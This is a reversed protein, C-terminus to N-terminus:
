FPISCCALLTKTGDQQLFAVPQCEKFHGLGLGGSLLSLLSLHMSLKTCACGHGAPGPEDLHPYDVPLSSVIGRSVFMPWPVIINHIGQRLLSVKHSHDLLFVFPIRTDDLTPPFHFHGGSESGPYDISVTCGSSYFHELELLLMM